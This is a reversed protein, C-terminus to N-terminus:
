DATESRDSDDHRKFELVVQPPRYSELQRELDALQRELGAIELAARSRKKLAQKKEAELEDLQRNTNRLGEILVTYERISVVPSSSLHTLAEQLGRKIQRNRDVAKGQTELFGSAKEHERRVKELEDSITESAFLLEDETM